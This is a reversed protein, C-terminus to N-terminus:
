TILPHLGTRGCFGEGGRLYGTHVTMQSRTVHSRSVGRASDPGQLTGITGCVGSLVWLVGWAM